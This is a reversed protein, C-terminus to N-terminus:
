LLMGAQRLEYLLESGGVGEKTKQSPNCISIRTMVEVQQLPTHTCSTLLCQSPSLFPQIMLTVTCCKWTSNM